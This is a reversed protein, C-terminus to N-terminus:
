GHLSRVADFLSAIGPHLVYRDFMVLVGCFLVVALFGLILEKPGGAKSDSKNFM